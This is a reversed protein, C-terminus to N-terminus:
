GKIRGGITYTVTRGQQDKGIGSAGKGDGFATFTGSAKLDNACAIEWNGKTRSTAQYNGRCEGANNPMQIRVTGAVGGGTEEITGSFMEAFGEWNVAIPRTDGRGKPARGQKALYSTLFDSPYLEHTDEGCGSEAKEIDFIINTGWGRYFTSAQYVGDRIERVNSIYIEDVNFASSRSNSGKSKTLVCDTALVNRALMAKEPDIGASRQATVCASLSLGLVVSLASLRIFNLLITGGLFVWM